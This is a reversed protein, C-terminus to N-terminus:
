FNVNLGLTITRTQPYVNNDLGQAFTNAAAANVEPDLGKYKTFTVLNTVSAFAKINNIYARGLFPQRLVYSLQINKLRFFSADEIFYDSARRNNNPDGQVIRPLEAGKNDPRWAHLMDAGYNSTNTNFVLLNKRGSNDLYNGVSFNFFLTLELNRYRLINNWGGYFDPEAQGLRVFDDTGIFGDGNVDVFKFDGPRTGTSQYFGNPSKANLADIEAQDQFIGAVKYGEFYGIPEGVKMNRYYGGNLRVVQSRYRTINFDTLWSLKRGTIVDSGIQFEWGKNSFDGVNFQQATMGSERIVDRTLVQDRTFKSFYGISGRLKNRFFSFDVAADLQYTSEWRIGPNPIGITYVGNNNNYFSGTEFMTAYLFDSFNASGTKGYSTRLKLDQMWTAGKMFNEESLRWALAGSPFLAWRNNVGFKTSEDVRGTFTAYYKGGWNYNTRLFYSQLGSNTGGSGYKQIAAAGGLHNLVEDDQFGTSEISSFRSRLTSFSAGGVLNLNHNGSTHLYTLTNEFLRSFSNNSNDKRSGTRKNRVEFVDYGPTYNENEGRNLNLAISSRFRLGKVLELEGFFTTMLAQSAISSLYRTRVFPNSTVSDPAAGYRGDAQYVPVDPRYQMISYFQSQSSGNNNMASFNINTGVRIKDFLTTELNTRLNYRKFSSHRIVGQQDTISGSFSYLTNGDNTGGNINLYVNQSSSPRTATKVWDTSADPYAIHNAPLPNGANEYAQKVVSHYQAANLLKYTNTFDDFSTNYGVTINPKPGARGRKTTIIVVGNAARSGYIAASSADKLIDIREIDEPNLASLPSVKSSFDSIYRENGYGDGLEVPIGDIVYLPENTGIASTGGRIRISAVAGPAGSSKVVQVGPARGVMAVDFNAANLKNMEDPNISSVSGTLDKQKVTGYGVVVVGSLTKPDDELVINMQPGTIVVEKTMMGIASFVLTHKDAPVALSFSGDADTTIGKFTGKVLVSVGPIPQKEKGGTVLGRIQQDPSKPKQEQLKTFIAVGEPMIRYALNTNKFLADLIGTITTENFSLTNISYKKVENENYSLNINSKVQLKKLCSSITEYSFAITMRKDLYDQARAQMSLGALLLCTIIWLKGAVRRSPQNTSESAKMLLVNLKTQFPPMNLM